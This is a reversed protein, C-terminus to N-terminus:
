WDKWLRHYAVQERPRDNRWRAVRPDDVLQGELAMNRCVAQELASALHQRREDVMQDLPVRPVLMYVLDCELAAAARQLSHLQVTGKLESAELRMVTTDTVNLRAAVDSLSM